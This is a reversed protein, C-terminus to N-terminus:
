TKEKNLLYRNKGRDFTAALAAYPTVTVTDSVTETRGIWQNLDM